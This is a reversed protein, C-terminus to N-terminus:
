WFAAHIPINTGMLKQACAQNVSVCVRTGAGVKSEISIRAGIVAARERAGILGLKGRAALLEYGEDLAFGVGDDEVEVTMMGGGYTISVAVFSARAHKKINTFVEQVIRFVHTAEDQGLEFEHGRVRCSGDVQADQRLGDLLWQIASVLGLSDLISPRLDKCLGRLEAIMGVADDEIGRLMSRGKEGLAEESDALEHAATAMLILTQIVGDHLELAMRKRENEQTQLRQRAAELRAAERERAANRRSADAVLKTQLGVVLLYPILIAAGSTVGSLISGSFAAIHPTIAAMLLITALASQKGKLSIAGYIIPLVM